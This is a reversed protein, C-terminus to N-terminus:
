TKENQKDILKELNEIRKLADQLSATLLAIMKSPDIQQTNITGDENIADKKGTVAYPVVEQLEHAIFGDIAEKDTKFNFNCPKLQLVKQSANEIPKINEKLRYDSSTNYSTNNGNRTISGVQTFTQLVPNSIYWFDLFKTSVQPFVNITGDGFDGQYGIHIKGGGYYNGGTSFNGNQADIGKASFTGSGNLTALLTTSAYWRFYSSTTPVSFWMTANDIGLAYDTDTASVQPWLVIKTGVSRTGTSPPAYGVNAFDIRNGTTGNLYIQGGGTANNNARTSILQSGGEFTGAVDSYGSAIKRWTGLSNNENYRISLYPRAVNREVAMYMGFSNAGTSSYNSGLGIYLSYYQAGGTGPGNTNGTVYRFGFDYSPTTADFSTRIGHAEGMSNFLNVASIGNLQNSNSATGVFSNATINGSNDISVIDANRANNRFVFGTTGSYFYLTSNLASFGYGADGVQLTPSSSTYNQNQRIIKNAGCIIDGTTTLNGNNITAQLTLETTNKKYFNFIGGFEVFSMQDGTTVAYTTAAAPVGRLIIGHYQDATAIFSYPNSGQNLFITPATTSVDSTFTPTRSGNITLATNSNTALYLSNNGEANLTLGGGQNSYIYTGGARKVGSTTYSGGFLALGGGNGNNNTLRINAASSTTTGTNFSILESAGILGANTVYALVANSNNRWQQLDGTQGSAGITILVPNAIVTGAVLLSADTTAGSTFGLPTTGNQRGGYIEIGWYSQMAMRGGHLAQISNLPDGFQFRAATGTAFNSMGITRPSATSSGTVSLFLDGTLTGGTLPLGSAYNPINLVNSILTAAGSNGTTTLSTIRNNYATDWNSQSTTTPISYGSTLTFAGTSNTYTLGTASSSISNRARIDTYYANTGEDINTTTLNVTGNFGNVSVVSDTNDIKEWVSGNFIAWDNIKWDNIGNLTTSGAFNVVYYFGKTGVSSTLIPNNSAANWTGIYQLAGQLNSPIQSLPITGSGDLTAVGNSVGANLVASTGLGLNARADSVNQAGTGGQTISWTPWTQNGAFTIAGSMVGGTLPLYSTADVSGDAKLFQSSTGGTSFSGCVLGSSTLTAVNSPGFYWKFGQTTSPVSYWMYNTELGIAYDINTASVNPYFNLKTGVSRTTTAPAALGAPTWDIRNGTNGGLFIQGKFLAADWARNLLMQGTFLGNIASMNGGSDRLVLTNATPQSTAGIATQFDVQNLASVSNDANIRLFSTASPNTLTFLNSGTTTAGLSTRGTAPVLGTAGGDWQRTQTYATDWNSQSATTPISYGSTLSFVGTTNTYTLGTATSSLATLPIYNNTNSALYYVSSDVSGDAKLFQSSTGGTRVFSPATFSTNTLTALNSTGFYWRFSQTTSPVSYWLTNNDIGLAYDVNVSNLVPYLLIKTGASRSNFTPAAVGNTNFDILNSTAGNLSIQRGSVSFPTTISVTTGNDTINSGTLAGAGSFKPVNNATGTWITTTVIERWALFSSNSKTRFAARTTNATLGFALLTGWNQGDVNGVNSGGRHQMNLISYWQNGFPGNTVGEFTSARSYATAGTGQLADMNTINTALQTHTWAFDSSGTNLDAAVGGFAGLNVRANASTTAGTGGKDIAIITSQLVYKNDFDSFAGAELLDWTTGNSIYIGAYKKNILYVGTDKNVFYKEDLNENAPPLDAFTDVSKPKDFGAIDLLSLPRDDFQNIM